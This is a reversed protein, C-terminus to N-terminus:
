FLEAHGWGVVHILAHFPHATAPDRALEVRARRLAEAPSAGDTLASHFFGVLELLSRYDLRNPSLLVAQAGASLFAGSLDTVGFDGRRQPGSGARCCGLVVIPPVALQEVAGCTLVGDNEKVPTLLISAPRERTHDLKGHALFTLVRYDTIDALAFSKLTAERGVLEHNSHERFPDLVLARERSGFPLRPLGAGADQEPGAVLYVGHAPTVGRKRERLHIAGALSPLYTIAHSEGLRVGEIELFEFPTYGLLDIGTVAVKKWGRVREIIPTPLLAGSLAMARHKSEALARPRQGEEPYTSVASVYDERLAELADFGAIEVHVVKEADFAFVHSRDFGPMYALVGEGETLLRSELEAVSRPVPANSRRVITGLEQARCFQWFAAAAGVEGPHEVVLSRILQSLIFRRQAFHLFAVGGPRVPLKGGYALLDDYTSRLNVLSAALQEEDAGREHVLKNALSAAFAQTEFSPTGYVQEAEDLTRNLRTLWRAADAYDRKRMAIEALWAMASMKPGIMTGMDRLVNKFEAEAKENWESDGRGLAAAGTGSALALWGEVGPFQVMEEDARAAEIQRELAEFREMAVLLKARRISAGAAHSTSNLAQALETELRSNKAARDILGLALQVEGLLGLSTCVYWDRRALSKISKVEALTSEALELATGWNGLHIAIQILTLQIDIRDNLSAAKGCRQLTEDLLAEAQTFALGQVLTRGLVLAAHAELSPLNTTRTVELVRRCQDLRSVGAPLLHEVREVVFSSSRVYATILSFASEDAERDIEGLEALELALPELEFTFEVVRLELQHREASRKLNNIRDLLDRSERDYQIQAAAFTSLLV